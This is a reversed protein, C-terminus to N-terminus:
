TRPWGSRAVTRPRADSAAARARALEDACALVDGDAAALAAACWRPTPATCTPRCSGWCGPWRTPTTAWCCAASPWSRSSSDPRRRGPGSTPPSGSRWRSRARSRAGDPPGSTSRARAANPWRLALEARLLDRLFPHYQYWGPHDPVDEVLVNARALSDLMRAAAPGGLEEILGPQLVDVVSTHLLLTRVEEAADPPDRGDPVRAINGRDGALQESPATRPERRPGAGDHRVPARRGLGPDPATLASVSADSLAVGCRVVAAADRGRHLGPRRAAGRGRDGRPPLPAAPADPDARTLLVVHLLGGSHRLVFDLEAALDASMCAAGTSCWRSRRDLRSLSM